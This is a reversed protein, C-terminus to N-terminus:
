SFDNFDM